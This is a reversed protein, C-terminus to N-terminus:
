RKSNSPTMLLYVVLHLSEEDGLLDDTFLLNESDKQGHSRASPNKGTYVWSPM